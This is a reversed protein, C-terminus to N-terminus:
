RVGRFRAGGFHDVLEFALDSFSGGRFGFEELKPFRDRMDLFERCEMEKSIELKWLHPLRTLLSVAEPTILTRSIDLVALNPHQKIIQALGDDTIDCSGVFLHQLRGLGALADLADDTIATASLDLLQLKRLNSLSEITVDNISTRALNLWTLNHLKQLDRRQRRFIDNRPLELIKLQQMAVVPTLQDDILGVRDMTLRNLGPWNGFSTAAPYTVRNESYVLEGLGPQSAAELGSPTVDTDELILAYPPPGELLAGLAEDGFNCRRAAFSDLQPLQAFMGAQVDLVLREARKADYTHARHVWGLELEQIRHAAAADIDANSVTGNGIYLARFTGLGFTSLLQATRGADHEPISLALESDVDVETNRVADVAFTPRGSKLEVVVVGDLRVDGPFHITRQAPRTIAM